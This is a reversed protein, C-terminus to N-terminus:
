LLPLEENKEPLLLKRNLPRFHVEWFDKEFAERLWMRPVLIFTTGDQYVVTELESLHQEVYHRLMPLCTVPLLVGSGEHWWAILLWHAHVSITFLWGPDKNPKSYEFPM